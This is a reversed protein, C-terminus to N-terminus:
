RMLQLTLVALAVSLLGCQLSKRSFACYLQCITGILRQEDMNSALVLARLCEELYLTGM